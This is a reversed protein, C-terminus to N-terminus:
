SWAMKSVRKKSCARLRKWTMPINLKPLTSTRIGPVSQRTWDRLMNGNFIDSIVKDTDFSIQLAQRVKPNELAKTSGNLSLYYQMISPHKQSDFGSAKELAAYDETSLNVVIDADGKELMSRAMTAEPLWRIIAKEIPNSNTWGGWYDKFQELTIQNNPHDFNM